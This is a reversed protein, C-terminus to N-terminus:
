AASEWGVFPSLTDDFPGGIVVCGSECLWAHSKLTGDDARRVAIVVNLRRENSSLRMEGALARVLCTSVGGLRRGTAEIAWVVQADDGRVITRILVRLRYGARRVRPLSTARLACAIAVQLLAAAALIPLRPIARRIRRRVRDAPM